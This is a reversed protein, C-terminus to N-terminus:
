VFDSFDSSFFGRHPKPVLFRECHRTEALYIVDKYVFFAFSIVTAFLM